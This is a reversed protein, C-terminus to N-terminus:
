ETRTAAPSSRPPDGFRTGCALCEHTPDDDSICCGGIGISIEGAQLAEFVELGPMGWLIPRGEQLGCSPCARGATM